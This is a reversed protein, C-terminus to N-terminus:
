GVKGTRFTSLRCGLDVRTTTGVDVLFSGFLLDYHFHLQFKGLSEGVFSDYFAMTIKWGHEKKQLRRQLDCLCMFRISILTILVLVKLLLYDYNVLLCPKLIHDADHSAIAVDRNSCGDCCSQVTIVFRMPRLMLADQGCYLM